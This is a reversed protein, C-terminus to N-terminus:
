IIKSYELFYDTHCIEWSNKPVIDISYWGYSTSFNAQQWDSWPAFACYNRYDFVDCKDYGLRHQDWKEVHIFPTNIDYHKIYRKIHNETKLDLHLPMPRMMNHSDKWHTTIFTHVGYEYHEMVRKVLQFEIKWKYIAHIIESVTFAAIESFEWSHNDNVIDRVIYHRAINERVLSEILSVKGRVYTKFAEANSMNQQLKHWGRTTQWCWWDLADWLDQLLLIDFAWYTNYEKMVSWFVRGIGKQFIDWNYEYQFLWNWWPNPELWVHADTITPKCMIKDKVRPKQLRIEKFKYEWMLEKTAQKYEDIQKQIATADKKFRLSAWNPWIRWGEIDDPSIWYEACTENLKNRSDLVWKVTAKDCTDWTLDTWKRATWRYSFWDNGFEWLVFKIFKPDEKNAM